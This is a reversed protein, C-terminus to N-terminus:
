FGHTAPVFAVHRRHQQGTLTNHRPAPDHTTSVTHLGGLLFRATSVFQEAQLDSGLQLLHEGVSVQCLVAEQQFVQLAPVAEDAELKEGTQLLYREASSRGATQLLYFTSCIQTHETQQLYLGQGCVPVLSQFSSQGRVKQLHVGFAGLQPAFLRKGIPQQRRWGAFEQQDPVRTLLLAPLTRLMMSEKQHQELVQAQSIANSREPNQTGALLKGLLQLAVGFSVLLQAPMPACHHLKIVQLLDPPSVCGQSCFLVFTVSLAESDYSQSALRHTVESFM